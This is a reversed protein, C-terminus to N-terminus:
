VMPVLWLNGHAPVPCHRRIPPVRPPSPWTVLSHIRRLIPPQSILALVRSRAREQSLRILPSPAKANIISGTGTITIKGALILTDANSSGSQILGGNLIMNNVTIVGTTGTGKYLLGGPSALTLSNGAFTGTFASAPTRLWQVSVTYDNAASPATADSWKGATNFSSAGLADTATLTVSAAQTADFMATAAILITCYKLNM